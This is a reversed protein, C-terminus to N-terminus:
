QKVVKMTAATGGAVLRVAYTGSPLRDLNLDLNNEGSPLAPWQQLMAQRGLMDSVIITAPGSNATTFSLRLAGDTPNPAATLHLKAADAEDTHVLLSRSGNAFWTGWDRNQIYYAEAGKGTIRNADVGRILISRVNNITAQYIVNNDQRSYNPWGWNGNDPVLYDADGTELNAGLVDYRGTTGDYYDFAMVFPANKSFTPNGASTGAPLGSYLKDIFATAGDTFTDQAQDYFNLFGIDWYSLDEGQGSTLKNYSDYMLYEGSYDFELVDAYQVEGTTQGQTYTPNYLYFTQTTLLPDLIDTIYIRSNEVKSLGAVFRGDKSIAVSRWDPFFSLENVQPTVVGGNYSLDIGIINGAADAFVIQQGNDTVSPRSAVGQDFLTGLFSNGFYLDLKQGDTTTCVTFDQGPNVALVGQYNGGQGSGIGVDAFAQAAANAETASYLDTAAQIVAIRCDIFQSSKVLYDRLAKYYVKEAKDLGVSTAFKYFAFNPIGSNAHVFGNDQSGTLKENVHNPQSPFGKHPDSLDRLCNFPTAGNKVVDEGIQWDGRDICVAFVDAFSENLAGSENQYELNATKEIVGHTMEHGGVDLGRALETFTADGNGYFMAAGNWYANGLSTGDSESVNYMSLINGGSGNISNRGHVTRYYEYSQIANWHTSVANKDSFTNNVLDTSTVLNFTFNPNEPSTNMANLAVIAGVPSSPMQSASTNFMPRGADELYLISGEMWAGFTRPQNLLDTGKATVPGGAPPVPAHGPAIECTHDFHHIIAGSQADVFYEVRRLLNPYITLHWVLKEVLPDRDPHYVVLESQTEAGGILLREEPTWDTKVKAVGLDAVATQLAAVEPVAPVVTALVPTPYYRGNLRDFVGNKAHAIVEGGYVPIGQFVQELRVHTGGQEDTETSKVVFEAAPQTLGQPALSALYDLARAGAPRDSDTNSSASTKGQFFIPLGSEGRIIKVNEAAAASPLTLPSLPKHTARPLGFPNTARPVSSTRNPWPRLKMQEPTPEPGKVPPHTKASQAAAQALAFVAFLVWLLIRKM